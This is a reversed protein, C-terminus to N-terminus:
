EGEDGIQHKDSHIRCVLVASIMTALALATLSGLWVPLAFIMVIAALYMPHRVYAYPGSDVVRHEQEDQVEIISSAFSNEQMVRFIMWLGWVLLALAGTKFPMTVSSWGFRVADLGILMLYPIFLLFFVRLFRKDWDRALPNIFQMRSKLLEPDNVKMWAMMCFSFGLHVIIYLWAEPWLVTGASGFLAVSMLIFSLYFRQAIRANSIEMAM